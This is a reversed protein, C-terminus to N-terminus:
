FNFSITAGYHAPPAAVGNLLIGSTAIGTRFYEDDLVNNGWISFEFMEGPTTYSLNLSLVSFGDDDAGGTGVLNESDFFYGSSYKFDANAVLEGTKIAPITWTGGLTLNTSASGPLRNGALAVTSTNGAFNIEADSQVESDLLTAAARLVLDSTPAFQLEADIGIVETDGGNLLITASTQSDLLNQHVNSYDYFYAAANFRLQRSIDSKLGVEFSTIEEADVSGAGPANGNLGGSKFGTTVGGYVLTDGADYELRATYTQTEDDLDLTGVNIVGPFAFPDTPDFRDMLTYEESTFRLGGTFSLNSTVPVTAQAYASTSEIEYDNRASWLSTGFFDGTLDASAEEKFYYLGGIWDINSDGTSQVQFEQSFTDSPYSGTFGIGGTVPVFVGPAAEFGLGPGEASISTSGEYESENVATISKLSFTDFEYTASLGITQSTINFGTGPGNGFDTLGNTTADSLPDFATGIESSFVASAGVAAGVLPDGLLQGAFGAIGTQNANLGPILGPFIDQGVAQFGGSQRDDSEFYSARLIASFRDNPVFNLAGSFTSADRDDLDDQHLGFGAPNLNEIFGDREFTAGSVTFGLVDSFSGHLTGKLERNNFDGLTASIRGSFPDGPDAVKTTVVIAGATANRGYLSGQPGALIQVSEINDMEFTSSSQRAVYVGDVYVAVSSYVGAGILSSGTGRIYPVVFGTTDTVTLTTSVNQLSILDSVGGKQLTEASFAQVSVPVDQLNEERREATVFVTNLVATDSTDAEQEQAMVNPVSLAIAGSIFTMLAISSTKM